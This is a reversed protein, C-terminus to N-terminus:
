DHHARSGTDSAGLAFRTPALLSPSSEKWLAALVVVWWWVYSACLVSTLASWDPIGPTVTASSFWNHPALLTLVLASGALGIRPRRGESDPIVLCAALPLAWVWHHAWSIPSIALGLTAVLSFAMFDRNQNVLERALFAVILIAVCIAALWLLGGEQGPLFREIIGRLSLNSPNVYGGVRQTDRLATTWYYIGSAGLTATGLLTAAVASLAIQGLERFRKSVLFYLLLVAPTLKIAIALGTLIGRRKQPILTFDAVALLLLFINIQGLSINALFPDTLFLANAGLLAAGAPLRVKTARAIEVVLLCTAAITAAIILLTYIPLPLLSLPSLIVLAIPPYTFYMQLGDVALTLPGAYVDGGAFLKQGAAHYVLSDGLLTLHARSDLAVRVLTLATWVCALSPLLLHAPRVPCFHKGIKQTLKTISHAVLPVGHQSSFCGESKPDINM